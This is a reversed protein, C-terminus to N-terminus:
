QPLLEQSFRTPRTPDPCNELLARIPLSQGPLILDPRIEALPELVFRRLHLRPHPILLEPSSFTRNGFYLLDLDIARPANRPRRSPRGMSSEIASLRELLTAPSGDSRIELVANLFRPADPECGIPDTEYVASGAILPGCTATIARVADRLQQLRDGLNSGLGIGAPEGAKAPNM